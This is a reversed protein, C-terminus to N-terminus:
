RFGRRNPSPRLDQVLVRSLLLRIDRAVGLLLQHESTFLCLLLVFCYCAFWLCVYSFVIDFLLLQHEFAGYGNFMYIYIYIYIYIYQATSAFSLSWPQSTNFVWLSPEMDTQMDTKAFHLCGFRAVYKDVRHAPVTSLVNATGPSLSIAVPTSLFYVHTHTYIYIYVYM